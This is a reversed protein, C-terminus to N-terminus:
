RKSPKGRYHQVIAWIVVGVAIGVAARIYYLTGDKALGANLICIFGYFICFVAVVYLLSFLFDRRSIFHWDSNSM